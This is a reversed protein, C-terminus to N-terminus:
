IHQHAVRKSNQLHLSGRLYSLALRPRGRSLPAPGGVGGVRQPNRQRNTQAAPLHRRLHRPSRRYCHRNEDFSAGIRAQAWPGWALIDLRAAMTAAKRNGSSPKRGNWSPSGAALPAMQKEAFLRIEKDDSRTANDIRKLRKYTGASIGLAAGVEKDTHRQSPKPEMPGFGANTISAGLRGGERQREKAKPRELEAIRRGAAGNTEGRVPPNRQRRQPNRQRNTQAAPLHRRLHRPSRRYCHRNEDFSARIRTQLGHAGFWFISGPPWSGAGRAAAAQSEAAGAGRDPPWRRWKNRRSLKRGM